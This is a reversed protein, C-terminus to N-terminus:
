YIYFSTNNLANEIKSNPTVSTLRPSPVSNNLANDVVKTDSLCQFFNPISENLANEVLLKTITQIETYKLSFKSEFVSWYNYYECLFRSNKDDRLFIWKKENDIIQYFIYEGGQTHYVNTETIYMKSWIDNFWEIIPNPTDTIM